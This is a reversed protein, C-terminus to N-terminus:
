KVLSEVHQVVNDVTFGYEQVVKEGNASAGFRDIGLIIGNDGVYREWGFSSGMEIAVRNKVSPPIVN